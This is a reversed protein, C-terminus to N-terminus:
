SNHIMRLDWKVNSFILTKIKFFFFLLWTKCYIPSFSMIFVSSFSQKMPRVFQKRNVIMQLFWKKHYQNESLFSRWLINIGKGGSNDNTNKYWFFVSKSEKLFLLFSKRSFLCFFPFIKMKIWHQHCFIFSFSLLHSCFLFSIWFGIKFWDEKEFVSYKCSIKQFM